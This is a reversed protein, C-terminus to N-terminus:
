PLVTVTGQVNAKAEESLRDLHEIVSRWTHIEVMDPLYHFASERGGFLIIEKGKAHAYGLEFHRGGRSMSAITVTYFDQHKPVMFLLVDARDIDYLDLNAIQEQTLNEESDRIWTSTCEFGQKELDNYYKQYEERKAYLGAIYVKLM